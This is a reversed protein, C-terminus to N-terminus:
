KWHFLHMLVGLALGIPIAFAWLPVIWDFGGFVMDHLGAVLVIVVSITFATRM